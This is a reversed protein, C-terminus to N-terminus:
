RAAEQRTLRGLLELAATQTQEDGFTGIARRTDALRAADVAIIV